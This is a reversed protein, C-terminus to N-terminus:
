ADAPREGFWIKADPAFLQVTAGAYALFSIVAVVSGITMPMQGSVLSLGTGVLALAFFVVLVWKAITSRRRAAFYWLLLQVGIGFLITAPLYWPGIMANAEQVAPTASTISWNLGTAIMGLAIYALYFREFRIISAPRQM